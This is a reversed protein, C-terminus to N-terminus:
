RVTLTKVAYGRVMSGDSPCRITSYFRIRYRGKALRKQMVQKFGASGNLSVTGACLNARLYKLARGVPPTITIVGTCTYPAAAQGSTSGTLLYSSGTKRAVLTSRFGYVAPLVTLAQSCIDGHTSGDPMRQQFILGMTAPGARVGSVTVTYHYLGAADQGSAVYLMDRAARNPTAVVAEALEPRGSRVNVTTTGRITTPGDFFYAPPNAQDRGDVNCGDPVGDYSTGAMATPVFLLGSLFVGLAFMKFISRM